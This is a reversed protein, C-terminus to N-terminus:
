SRRWWLAVLGLVRYGAVIGVLVGVGVSLGGKPVFGQGGQQAGFGQLIGDGLVQCQDALATVYMCTCPPPGCTYNRGSFENVMMGQFVYAEYDVYSFVYKYFVNLLDPSVLFGAVSMWLGNAFATVAGAAIATPFLAAIFITLSEAALLDLYLYMTFTLFALPTPHFNSLWYAISSFILSFFVPLLSTLRSFLFAPHFVPTPHHTQLHKPLPFPPKCLYPVGILFNAIMFSIPGYLGNAREKVLTARDELFAPVYAIAMFSMFASAFFIANIFPQISEQAAELRLWITGMMVALGIYMALRIGYTILDRYSKIFNRQLLTIPISLASPGPQFDLEFLEQPAWKYPDVPDWAVALSEASRGFPSHIQLVKTNTPQKVDMSDQALALSEPSKSWCSQIRNLRKAASYLDDAFDVNVVDLLFEAPNFHKPMPIGIEGFYHGVKKVEGFYCTTGGSLLLLKDFCQFTLTSPQHISAIVMLNRAKAIKQIYSIVQYSCHANLGSTPEDLFLIKPCTILASAIGLRRKQGGSLGKKIPTGIITDAQHQLGLSSILDDIRDKREALSISSPLALKSAFYLTEKTTLCGIFSDEQEVFSSSKRLATSSPHMGNVLIDGKIDFKSTSIRHALVDLLTTKGCGSPGMLAVVEGAKISGQVNSLITKHGGVSKDYISVDLSNWSFTHVTRNRQNSRDSTSEIDFAKQSM